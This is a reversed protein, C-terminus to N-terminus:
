LDLTNNASLANSDRDSFVEEMKQIEKEKTSPLVHSYLDSTMALTKHGLLAQMVKLPIGQELGRTAFTHRFAHYTFKEISVGEEKNMSQIINNLQKTVIERSVLRGTETTFVLDDLGKIPKWHTGAFKIQAEQKLKQEKLLSYCGEIMPIDRCSTSTKPDGRYHGEGKIYKLTGTVHILKKEFDVDSWRLARVEGNRMGTYLALLFLNSYSSQKQAYVQFCKQEEITLAKREKPKKGAPITALSAFNKKVLEDRLAQEFMGYLVVSVLSITGKAYGNDAMDNYLNQIQRTTVSSVRKKGLAPKIHKNYTIKYLEETGPRVKPKRYEELWIKFWDEITVKSDKAYLQNTVEYRLDNLQKEVDKLKKGYIPGFKEGQYQFRGVYYGDDRLIIGKPLKSKSKM